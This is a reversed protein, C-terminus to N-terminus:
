ESDLVAWVDFACGTCRLDKNKAILRALTTYDRKALADAIRTAQKRLKDGENTEGEQDFGTAWHCLLAVVTAVKTALKTENATNTEM